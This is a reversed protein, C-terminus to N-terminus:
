RFVNVLILDPGVEVGCKRAEKVAKKVMRWGFHLSFGDVWGVGSHSVMLEEINLGIWAVDDHVVTTEGDFM